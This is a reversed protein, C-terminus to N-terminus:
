VEHKHGCGEKDPCTHIQGGDKKESLMVYQTKKCKTCPKEIVKSFIAFKCKPYATCGWFEGGRWARKGIPGGCKPCPMKLTEQHIHKCKPYGPCAIFPGYRGVREVLKSGCKPCDLDTEVVKPKETKVLKVNGDEDREFNSTFSCEPYGNCGLFQGGKGFRINLMEKKCDPCKVNTPEAQKKADAGGFKEVDVSFKKYFKLLLEDRKVDGGAVKDLAQEMQATFNVNIIDPLNKTLLGNVSRGLESPIFRKNEVEVYQRKVLTSLTAAYTSPRGIDLEKMEKVLTAQSFRAPPKTFHQKGEKKSLNLAQGKAIDKPIKVSKKEDEDEIAYVKLFGDFMLSSGTARFQYDGAEITVTRQFYEAPVMQSGVFRKWILAYLKAQEPKLFPAVKDPTHKVDIPRVAEHADQANGGKKEYTNAKAPLYNAGYEDKIFSRGAKLATDSLRVSDTRMYTILAEPNSKDALPVGEYLKQAVSMTRDVSFGLKNFADQQLTSTMFPALPKKLRKKEILDSIAYSEKDMAKLIADAAKKDGIKAKKGNIKSLEAEFLEKDYGFHAHSSWYEEPKFAEIAQERECVLMLAVSQVRGASLGKTIKKWLIPSVQYGVWRDLVRRAQQAHVKDRDVKRKVTIATEIAPKTIENFVIRHMKADKKLVKAIEEGIHWSIIEGERDPDSALFIEDCRSAQKCISSITEAKGDLPVYELNIKEDKTIEVGIKKSPLDKVHGFTSMIKFEKGLFKGITKIKAPSEVILLKPM